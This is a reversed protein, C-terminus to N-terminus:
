EESVGTATSYYYRVYVDTFRCFITQQTIHQPEKTIHHIRSQTLHPCKLLEMTTAPQLTFGFVGQGWTTDM